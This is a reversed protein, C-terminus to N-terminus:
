LGEATRLDTRTSAVAAANAALVSEQAEGTLYADISADAQFLALIRAEALPYTTFNEVTPTAEPDNDNYWSIVWGNAATEEAVPDFTYNITLAM